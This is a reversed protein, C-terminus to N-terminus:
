STPCAVTDEMAAKLYEVAFARDKRLKRVMVDDHLVSTANKM